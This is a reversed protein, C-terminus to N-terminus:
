ILFSALLNKDPPREIRHEPLQFNCLTKSFAFVPRRLRHGIRRSQKEIRRLLKLARGQLDVLLMHLAKLRRQCDSLSCGAGEMMTVFDIAVEIQRAAIDRGSRRATSCAHAILLYRSAAEARSLVSRVFGLIWESFGRSVPGVALFGLLVVLGALIRLLRYRQTELAQELNVSNQDGTQILRFLFFLNSVNTLSKRGGRSGLDDAPASSRLFDAGEDSLQELHM